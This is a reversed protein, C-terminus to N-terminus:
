ALSTIIDDALERAVEDAYDGCDSEIGWLANAYSEEDYEDDAGLAARAADHASDIDDCGLIDGLASELRERAPVMPSVSIGMWHWQDNCWGRLRDFDAMVAAYRIQGATPAKGLKATLKALAEPGLGWGDRKAQVMAGAFNYTRYYGDQWVLILEGPAKPPKTGMGFAHRKQASVEGHGDHEEWPCGMGSDAYHRAIFAHGKHTFEVTHILDSM